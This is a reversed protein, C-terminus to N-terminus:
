SETIREAPSSELFGSFSKSFNSLYKTSEKFACFLYM